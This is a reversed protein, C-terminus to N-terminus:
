YDFKAVIRVPALNYAWGLMTQAIRCDDVTPPNTSSMLDDANSRLHGAIRFLRGDTLVKTRTVVAFGEHNTYHEDRQQIPQM